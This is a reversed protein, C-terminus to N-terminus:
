HSRAGYLLRDLEPLLATTLEHAGKGNQHYIDWFVDCRTAGDRDFFDSYDLLRISGEAVLPDLMRHAWVAMGRPLLEDRWHRTIPMLILLPPRPWGISRLERQRQDRVAALAPPEGSAAFNRWDLVPVLTALPGQCTQQVHAQDPNAPKIAACSALTQWDLGCSDFVPRPGNFLSRTDHKKYWRLTKRRLLPHRVLDQIDSRYQWLVSAAGWSGRDDFAFRRHLRAGGFLGVQFPTAIALEYNGNSIGTLDPLALAIIGGQLEPRRQHLWDILTAVSLWHSGPMSLNAHTFGRSAAREAILRHDLGFIARSSGLTVFDIPRPFEALARKVRVSTGAHSDPAALPEWLGLRFGGELALLLLIPLLLRPLLTRMM